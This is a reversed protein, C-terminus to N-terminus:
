PAPYDMHVSIEIPLNTHFCISTFNDYKYHNVNKLLGSRSM